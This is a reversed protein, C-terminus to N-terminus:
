PIEDVTNSQAESEFPKKSVAQVKTRTKGEFTEAKLLLNLEQGVIKEQVWEALDSPEIDGSDSGTKEKCLANLDIDTVGKLTDSLRWLANDVLAYKDLVPEGISSQENDTYMESTVIWKICLKHNGAKSLNKGIFVNKPVATCPGDPLLPLEDGIDKPIHIKM